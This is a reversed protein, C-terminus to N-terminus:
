KELYRHLIAAVQARRAQGKPILHLGDETQSGSILGYGVAWSMAEDAWPSTTSSDVFGGLMVADDEEYVGKLKAYRFMISAFQERTIPDDPGYENPNYGEVIHNESAWTIADEYYSNKMVDGFPCDKTVIPYDEMRYLVAVVMGRSTVLEPGFTEADLGSMLRNKYVYAVDEYYWDEMRIDRFNMKPLPGLAPKFTYSFKIQDDSRSLIMAEKENLLPKFERYDTFIYDKEAEVTVTVTYSTGEAFHTDMKDWEVSAIYYGRHSDAITGASKIEKGAEPAEVYVSVDPIDNPIISTINVSDIAIQYEDSVNHHRFAIRITEGKYVGLDLVRYGIENVKENAQAVTESVLLEPAMGDVCAYVSYYEEDYAEDVAAVKYCLEPRGYSLVEVEPSYAWNDPALVGDDYSASVLAYTGDMSEGTFGNENDSRIWNRGDGDEDLFEWGILDEETEFSTHYSSYTEIAYVEAGLVYTLLLGLAAVGLRSIMCKKKM